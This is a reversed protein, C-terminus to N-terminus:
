IKYEVNRRKVNSRQIWVNKRFGCSGKRGLAKLGVTAERRRDM